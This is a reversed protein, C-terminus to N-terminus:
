SNQLPSTGLPFLRPPSSSVTLTAAYVQCNVHDMILASPGLGCAQLHQSQSCSFSNIRQKHLVWYGHMGQICYM